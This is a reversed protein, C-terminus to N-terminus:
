GGTGGTDGATATDAAPGDERGPAEGPPPTAAPDLERVVTDGPASDPTASGRPDPRLTLDVRTGDQLRPQGAVVVTDGAQIGSAIEVRGPLREGVRVERRVAVGERVLFVVSQGSRPVVVAEPLMVADPRRELSLRLNAFQGARLARDPNPVRAKMEVARTEPNVVPSVFTVTGDFATDPSSSVRLNVSSGRELRGVYQEPVSFGIELPDNDVLMFLPTGPQVYQGVDVSRAGIQGTFPARITADALEARALALNARAEELAARATEHSAELDDFAQQSIAGSELLGRNRELQRGLNREETRARALAARRQELTAQLKQRDLLALTDGRRVTAGEEFLLRSIQGTTEARLEVSQIAELSGVSRISVVLTDARARVGEVVVAADEGPESAGGESGGCGSVALALGLVASVARRRARRKTLKM